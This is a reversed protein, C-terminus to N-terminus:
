EEFTLKNLVDVGRKRRKLRWNLLSTDYVKRMQAISWIAFCAVAIAIGLYVYFYNPNGIKEGTVVVAGGILAGLITGVAPAYNDMFLAVRGRREEPVLGQFAKQSSEDITNRFVKLLGWSGVAVPVLTSIVLAGATVLANIPQILFTNKLQLKGIVRGTIFSSVFYSVIAAALLCYSYFQQYENKDPIAAKTVVFFRFEVIVDCVLIATIAALLYGYSPVERVFGWGESLTQGLTEKERVTERLTLKRLGVTILLFCVLYTLINILLVTNVDLSTISLQRAQFLLRVGITTGIGIVKGIFSWSSIVPILRKAQAIEFIDNALVWFFMPFVLWQQQSMIYLLAASVQPPVATLAILRLAFFILAFALATWRLLQIRNFRDVILSCLAATVLIVVGNIANVLLTQNAGGINIVSAIGVIGSMQRAATNALLLFSFLAVLGVEGSRVNFVRQLFQSM